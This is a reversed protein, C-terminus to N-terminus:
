DKNGFANDLATAQTKAWSQANQMAIFATSLKEKEAALQAELRELQSTLGTNAQTLSAQQARNAGGTTTLFGYFKSIFGTSGNLFFDQVDAPHESLASTLKEPDRIQLQNSIGNFDLGLDNLQDITGSLGSITEFAMSRLTRGWGEVERNGTLTSGEVKTGTITIKTAADIYTQVANFADVFSQISGQMSATDSDVQIAQTTQTNVTVSLGAIGHVTSDLTNSASTITDGGNVTFRANTGRALTSGAGATLGLSALLGGPSDTVGLGIDGTSNNTLTMRDNVADYAATVGAASKNIRNILGGLTDTSADYAISVGNVAFSGSGSVAPAFGANALTASTKVTGLAAGSAVASTGNNALKMVGLFNSTDNSAGLVIEGTGQLRVRDTASDYTATVDGGTATSIADFVQQLSDTTAVTVAHGNVSFTGATVASATRLNAVTLANVDDTPALGAGINTAGRLQGSTALQQVAFVYTGLPAGKSSTSKWTTNATDTSVTRASFIDNGRIAQASDQLATLLTGLEALAASKETNKTKEIEVPVITATRQVAVLQSVVSQWDFASDALLNSIQIGM